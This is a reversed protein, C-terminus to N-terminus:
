GGSPKRTPEAAATKGTPTAKKALQAAAPTAAPAPTAQAPTAAMKDMYAKADANKAADPCALAVSVGGLVLLSVVFRKM